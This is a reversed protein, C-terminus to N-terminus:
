GIYRMLFVMFVMGLNHTIHVAICPVISGTKEYLYVLLLGLVMIPLFGVIHAHLFAFVASVIIMGWIAGVKKRIAPYAFGRFFIEEAVPGFVAAFITSFWLVGSQKEELIVEVIPQVPPEYQILRTVLFTAIMIAMIVPIIAVYGTLGYFVCKMASKPSLGVADIHHHRKKVVFYLMVSIAVINMILTNFVMMFNENQLIPLLTSFFSQVIVAIYGFTLFILGVKMIDWVTWRIERKPIIRIDIPKKRFVRGLFYGDFIMGLLIMFLLLLNFAAIFLHLVPKEKALKEIKAQQKEAREADFMKISEKEDEEPASADTAGPPDQQVTEGGGTAAKDELTKLGIALLNIGLIFVLLVIYFKNKSLRKLFKEM